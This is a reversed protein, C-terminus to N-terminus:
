VKIHKTPFEISTDDEGVWKWVYSSYTPLTTEETSLYNSNSTSSYPLKLNTSSWEYEWSANCTFEAATSPNTIDTVFGAPSPIGTNSNWKLFKYTSDSNDLNQDWIGPDEYQLLLLGSVVQGEVDISSPLDPLTMTVTHKHQALGYTNYPSIGKVTKVNEIVNEIKKLEEGNYVTKGVVYNGSYQQWCSPPLASWEELKTEDAFKSSAKGGFVTTGKGYLRHDHKVRILQM